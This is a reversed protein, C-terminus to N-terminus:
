LLWELGSCIDELCRRYDQLNGGFPDSIDSAFPRLKDAHDPFAFLLQSNHSETLPVVVHAWSLLEETVPQSTHHAHDGGIEREALSSQAHASMPSGQAAMTGCSKAIYTDSYQANTVAAAM